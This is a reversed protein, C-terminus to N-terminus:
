CLYVNPFYLLQSENIKFKYENTEYKKKLQEAFALIDNKNMDIEVFEKFNSPSTTVKEM